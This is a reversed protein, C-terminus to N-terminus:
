SGSKKARRGLKTASSITKALAANADSRKADKAGAKNGLWEKATEDGSTALKRAFQKLSPAGTNPVLDYKVHEGKGDKISVQRFHASHWMKKITLAATPTGVIGRDRNIPQAVQEEVKVSVNNENDM